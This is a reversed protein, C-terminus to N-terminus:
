LTGIWAQARVHMVLCLTATANPGVDTKVSQRSRVAHHGYVSHTLPRKPIGPSWTAGLDDNGRRAVLPPRRFRNLSEFDKRETGVEM